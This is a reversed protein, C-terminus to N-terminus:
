SAAEGSPPPEASGPEVGAPVAVDLGAGDLGAGDLGADDADPGAEPEAVVPVSGARRRGAVGRVSGLRGLGSRVAARSRRGHPRSWERVGEEVQGGPLALILVVTVAIAQLILWFHRWFMGRTLILHGGAAPLGYGQAWGDVTQPKLPRGDLSAHWGGDAPEALLLTRGVAGPPITASTATRGSPLPVGDVMLRGAPIVLRWLGFSSTRSFLSLSPTADLVPPLPSGDPHPVLVYQVGMRALAPGDGHGAALAAVLGNMRSVGPGGAPVESEGLTPAAGRLVTYAVRGPQQNLVLTRAQGNRVADVGLFAPVTDTGARGLPGHVGAVIWGGAALVPASIAAFAIVAGGLRYLRDRGVLMEAARQVAATAALLIGGAALLLAVGPWAPGTDTGKIVPIASILIATLLGFLALMWGALVATRRSRLPLALLAALILGATAWVLTAGPGGPSLLFISRAPLSPSTLEARHLGAELLFRSPHVLLGVTWPLLLLPPVALAIALDAGRGRPGFAVWVLAGILLAFLWTLPVFAMAVTLLLAVGWAARRARRVRTRADGQSRPLGLMRSVGVGILPLLIIVVVTGLRGGAVAGGVVPLLAYTAAMWVRVAVAPIRRTSRARRGPVSSYSDPVITRAALYASFGAFPACGLLLLMVAAWPKGFLPTSLLALVGVYPPSGTDSGLGVPHWGTLYQGWLDRAGGWAPVLAGGGLRGGTALLSRGAVLSVLALGLVLLVSPNTMVRRLPGAEPTPLDGEHIGINDGSLLAAFGEAVRRLALRHAMLRRVSRYVHARNQDRAARARRLEVPHRLVSAVAALEDRAAAPQKGIVLSLARILSGFLNRAVARLMPRWPLNALLVLLANRRDLRRPHEATMGIVRLRRASAEAHYVVADTVVVVRHGAAHTRWCLDIDDRFLGLSVDFGGLQEWVDLRVLMGATSVALVDRLGDHQGQDLESRDIGTYRRGFGDISVGAELLLRRDNWDRLKPGLLGIGPDSGAAGLLRELADHAPMSDDHLLWVWEIERTGDENPIEITAAPHRLAEMVAEGYGTTRPLELLNGEGVVEALVTPGRDTSGTDAAVLRQVPRTQTLLAKLTEPLWRAGDHAVLVATVIHRIPSM